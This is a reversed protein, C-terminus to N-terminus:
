GLLDELGAESVPVKPVSTRTKAKPAGDGDNFPAKRRLKADNLAAKMANVPDTDQGFTNGFNSAPAFTAAFGKVAKSGMMYVSPVVSLHTLEGRAALDRIMSELDDSM